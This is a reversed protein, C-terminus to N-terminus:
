LLVNNLVKRGVALSRHWTPQKYEVSVFFVPIQFDCLVCHFKVYAVCFIVVFIVCVCVFLV